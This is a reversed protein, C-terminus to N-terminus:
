GLEFLGRAVSGNRSLLPSGRAFIYAISCLRAELGRNGRIMVGLEAQFACGVGEYKRGGCRSMIFSAVGGAGMTCGEEWRLGIGSTVLEFM